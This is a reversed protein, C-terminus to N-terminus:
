VWSVVEGVCRRLADDVRMCKGRRLAAVLSDWGHGDPVSVTAEGEEGRIPEGFTSPDDKM